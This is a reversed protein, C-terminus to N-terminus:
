SFAMMMVMKVKRKQIGLHATDPNGLLARGEGVHMEVGLSIRRHSIAVREL